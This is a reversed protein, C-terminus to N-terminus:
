TSTDNELGWTVNNKRVDIHTRGTYSGKGYKDLYKECLYSFVKYADIGKVRFDAAKSLLHQSKPSGGVSANHLTCRNGSNITIPKGLFHERVDELVKILAYDVTDQGCGCKCEFESRNFNNSLDGM